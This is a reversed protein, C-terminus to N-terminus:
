YNYSNLPKQKTKKKHKNCFSSEVSKTRYLNRKAILNLVYTYCVFEFFFINWFNWAKWACFLYKTDFFFSAVGHTHRKKKTTRHIFYTDTECVGVFVIKKKKWIFFLVFVISTITDFKLLNYLCRKQKYNYSIRKTIQKGNVSIYAEIM